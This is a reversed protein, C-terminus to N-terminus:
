RAVSRHTGAALGCLVGVVAIAPGLLTWPTLSAFIFGLAAAFLTVVMLERSPRHRWRVFTIATAAALAAMAAGLVLDFMPGWGDFLPDPRPSPDGTPVGPPPPFALLVALTLLLMVFLAYGVAIIRPSPWGASKVQVDSM